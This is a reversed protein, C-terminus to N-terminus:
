NICDINTKLMGNADVENGNTYKKYLQFISNKLTDLTYDKEKFKELPFAM